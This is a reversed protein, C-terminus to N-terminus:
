SLRQWDAVIKFQAKWTPPKTCKTVLGTDKFQSFFENAKTMMMKANISSAFTSKFQNMQLKKENSQKLLGAQSFTLMESDWKQM